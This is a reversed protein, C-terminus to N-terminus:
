DDFATIGCAPRLFFTGPLSRPKGAVRILLWIEKGPERGEHFDRAFAARPGTWSLLSELWGKRGERWRVKKGGKTGTACSRQCAVPRQKIATTAVCQAAPRDGKPKLKRPRPPEVWVGM